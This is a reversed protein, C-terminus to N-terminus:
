KYTIVYIHNKAESSGASIKPPIEPNLIVNKRREERWCLLETAGTGYWVTSELKM